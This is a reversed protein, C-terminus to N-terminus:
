SGPWPRISRPRMCRCSPAETERLAQPWGATAVLVVFTSLVAIAKFPRKM